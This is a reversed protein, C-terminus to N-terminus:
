KLLWDDLSIGNVVGDFIASFPAIVNKYLSDDPRAQVQFICNVVSQVASELDNDSIYPLYSM